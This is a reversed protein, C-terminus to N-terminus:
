STTHPRPTVILRFNDAGTVILATGAPAQGSQCFAEYRQGDITIYGSPSLMTVAEATKGILSRAGEDVAQSVATIERTLFARRGLKTKPLVKLELVLAAVIFLGAGLVVLLGFEPGYFIFTIACAALMMVGGIIGLIAGPVVVEAMIFLVGLVLLLIIWTM